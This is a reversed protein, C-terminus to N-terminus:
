ILNQLVRHTLAHFGPHYLYALIALGAVIPLWALGRLVRLTRVLLAKQEDFKEITKTLEASAQGAHSGQLTRLRRVVLDFAGQIRSVELMQNRVQASYLLALLLTGLFILYSQGIGDTHLIGVLAVVPLPLALFKSATDGMVRTLRSAFDAQADALKSIFTDFAYQGVYCEFDYRFKDLVKTWHEVLYSFPDDGIPTKSVTHAVAVRLIAQKELHHTTGELSDDTLAQLQTLDIPPSDVLDPNIKTRVQTARPPAGEQAPLMFFLLVPGQRKTIGQGTLKELGSILDCISNLCQLAPPPEASQNGYDFDDEILYFNQPKVGQHVTENAQVLERVGRVFHIHSNQSLRWTFSVQNGQRHAATTFWGFHTPLNSCNAIAQDLRPTTAGSYSFSSTTYVDSALQSTASGTAEVVSRYLEVISSFM